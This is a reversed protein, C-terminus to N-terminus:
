ASEGHGHLNDPRGARQGSRQFVVQKANARLRHRVRDLVPARLRNVDLNRKTRRFYGHPDLVVTGTEIGRLLEFLRATAEAQQAHALACAFNPALQSNVALGSVPSFYGDGRWRM